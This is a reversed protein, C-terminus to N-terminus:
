LCPFANKTVRWRGAYQFTLAGDDAVTVEGVKLDDFWVSAPNM